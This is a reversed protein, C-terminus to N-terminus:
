NGRIFCIFVYINMLIKFYTINIQLIPIFGKDKAMKELGIAMPIIFTPDEKIM